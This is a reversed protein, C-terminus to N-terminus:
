HDQTIYLLKRQTRLGLNLDSDPCAQNVERLLELSALIGRSALFNHSVTTEMYGLLARFGISLTSSYDRKSLIVVNTAGIGKKKILFLFIFFRPGFGCGAPGWLLGQRSSGVQGLSGIYKRLGFLM